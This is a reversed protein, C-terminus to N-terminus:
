KSNAEIDFYFEKDPQKLGIRAIFDSCLSLAVQTKPIDFLTYGLGAVLVEKPSHFTDAYKASLAAPNKGVDSIKKALLDLLSKLFQGHSEAFSRKVFISVQPSRKEGGTVLAWADQFTFLRKASGKAELDSGFPEPV